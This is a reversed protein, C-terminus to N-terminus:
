MIVTPNQSGYQGSARLKLESQSDRVNFSIWYLEYMESFYWYKKVSITSLYLNKRFCKEIFTNSAGPPRQLGIFLSYGGAFYLSLTNAPLQLELVFYLVQFLQSSTFLYWVTGKLKVVNEIRSKM